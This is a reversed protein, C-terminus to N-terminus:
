QLGVDYIFDVVPFLSERLLIDRFHSEVVEDIGEAEFVRPEVALCMRLRREVMDGFLGPEAVAERQVVGFVLNSEVVCLEDPVETRVDPLLVTPASMMARLLVFNVFITM